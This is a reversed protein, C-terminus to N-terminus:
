TRTEGTVQGCTPCVLGKTFQGSLVDEVTCGALRAIRIALGAVARSKGRGIRELTNADVKLARELATWTRYNTRLVRLALVVCREEEPTLRDLRVTARSSPRRERKWHVRRPKDGGGDM